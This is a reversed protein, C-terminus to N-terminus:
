LFKDKLDATPVMCQELRGFWKYRRKAIFDYIMDRLGYPIIFFLTMLNRPFGLAKFIRLAATSKISIGKNKEYLIISDTKTTDITYRTILEQGVESQLPTFLFINNKDHKIIYQVSHNCLNCVGDFLVLKNHEPIRNM